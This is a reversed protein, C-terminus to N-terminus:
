SAWSMNEMGVAKWPTFMNERLFVDRKHYCRTQMMVDENFHIAHM